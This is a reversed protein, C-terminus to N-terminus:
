LIDRLQQAGSLCRLKRFAVREIQRIRERTVGFRCGVEELTYCEGDKLGYRLRLVRAEKPELVSLAEEVKSSLLMRAVEAEPRLSEDEEVFDGLVAEGDELDVPKDLSLPMEGQKQLKLVKSETKGFRSAIEATTPEGGLEQELLESTRYLRRIEDGKHVPIRITRGHDALARTITQRVWWTAYTSFKHGLKYDYKVLAKYLGINGEQILDLFPLGKGLYKKAVSIVLLTNHKVLSQGAAEGLVLLKQMEETEEDSIETGNLRLLLTEINRGGVVGKALVVEEDQSLLRKPLEVFYQSTIDVAMGDAVIRDERVIALDDLLGKLRDSEMEEAEKRMLGLPNDNVLLKNNLHSLEKGQYGSSIDLKYLKNVKSKKHGNQVISHMYVITDVIESKTFFVSRPLVSGMRRGMEVGTERTLEECLKSLHTAVLAQKVEGGDTRVLLGMLNLKTTCVEMTKPDIVWYKENSFLEGVRPYLECLEDISLREQDLHIRREPTKEIMKFFILVSNVM